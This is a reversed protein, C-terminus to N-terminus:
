CEKAASEVEKMLEKMQDLELYVDNNDQM